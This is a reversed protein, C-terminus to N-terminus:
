KLEVSQIVTAYSCFVGMGDVINSYSVNPENFPSNQSSYTRSVSVHYDYYSKTVTRLELDTVEIEHDSEVVFNILNNTLRSGDILVGTHHHPKDIANSGYEFSTLDLNTAGSKAFLHYYNSKDGDVSLQIRYEHKDAKKDEIGVFQIDSMEISEPVVTKATVAQIDENDKLEVRLELESGAPPLFLRRCRWIEENEGAHVANDYYAGYSFREINDEDGDVIVYADIEGEIPRYPLGTNELPVSISIVAYVNGNADIESNVVLQEPANTEYLELDQVCASFVCVM